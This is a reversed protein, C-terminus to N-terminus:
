LKLSERFDMDVKWQCGLFFFDLCVSLKVRLLADQTGTWVEEAASTGEWNLM